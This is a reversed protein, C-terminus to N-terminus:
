PLLGHKIFSAYLNDITITYGIIGEWELYADLLERPSSHKVWNSFQEYDNNHHEQWQDWLSKHVLPPLAEAYPLGLM